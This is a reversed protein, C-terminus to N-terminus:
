SSALRGTATKKKSVRIQADPKRAESNQRSASNTNQIFFNNTRITDRINMDYNVETTRSSISTKNKDHGKKSESQKGDFGTVTYDQASSPIGTNKASFNKNKKASIQKSILCPSRDDEETEANAISPSNESM